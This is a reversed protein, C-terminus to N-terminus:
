PEDHKERTRETVRLTWDWIKLGAQEAQECERILSDLIAQLHMRRADQVLLRVLLLEDATTIISLGLEPDPTM